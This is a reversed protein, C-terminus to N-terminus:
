FKLAPCTRLFGGIWVHTKTHPRQLSTYNQTNTSKGPFLFDLCEFSRLLRWSRPFRSVDLGSKSFSMQNRGCRESVALNGACQNSTIRFWKGFTLDLTLLCWFILVQGWGLMWWHEKVPEMCFDYFVATFTLKNQLTKFIMPRNLTPPVEETFFDTHHYQLGSEGCM